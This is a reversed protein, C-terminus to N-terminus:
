QLGRENLLETAHKWFNNPTLYDRWVKQIELQKNRFEAGSLSDHFELILKDMEQLQHLEVWVGIQPWDIIHDLPLVLSTNLIVPIRGAALTEYLRISFNGAGRVCLSYPNRRLGELFHKRSELRDEPKNSNHYRDRTLFDTDIESSGNLVDMAKSRLMLGINIPTRLLTNTSQIVEYGVQNVDSEVRNSIARHYTNTEAHGVFGISPQSTYPAPEWEAFARGDVLVPLSYENMYTHGAIMSTRFVASGRTLEIPLPATEDHSMKFITPVASRRKFKLVADLRDADQLVVGLDQPFVRYNGGAAISSVEVSSFNLPRGQEALYLNRYQLTCRRQSYQELAHRRGAKALTEARDPNELLLRIKAALDIVDGSEFILGNEGNNVIRALEGKSSVILAKEALMAEVAVLGFPEQWVSPVVVLSAAALEARAQESNLWGTFRFNKGLGLAEAYKPLIHQDPGEGALVLEVEPIVQKVLAMAALLQGFGKEPSFRGSAFVTKDESEKGSLPGYDPVGNVVLDLEGVLESYERAIEERCTESIAVLRNSLERVLRIKSKAADPPSLLPGHITTIVPIQYRSAIEQLLFLHPGEPNHNHIVEPRFESVFLDIEDLLQSMVGQKSSLLQSLGIVYHSPSAAGATRITLDSQAPDFGLVKVEDGITTLDEALNQVFNERGGRTSVFPFIWQLIRM